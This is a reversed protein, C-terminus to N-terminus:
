AYVHRAIAAQAVVIQLTVLARSDVIRKDKQGLRVRENNGVRERALVMEGPSLYIEPLNSEPEIM